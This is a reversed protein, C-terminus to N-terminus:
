NNNGKNVYIIQDCLNLNEIDHSVIFITKKNKLENLKKYFNVESEQDLSNTAEDFVLIETDFYFARALCIKQKQGSSIKAGNQGINTKLGEPFNQILENLNLFEVSKNLKEKDIQSTEIEFAINNEINSDLLFSNNSVYSIKKYWNINRLSVQKNDILLMRPDVDILGMLINLLTSKGSGNPGSIGIIQGKKFECSINNLILDNDFRFELNKIIINKEFEIKDKKVDEFDTERLEKKLKNLSPYAYQILQMSSIIRALGPMIRLSAVLLMSLFIILEKIDLGLFNFVFFIIIFISALVIEMLYKPITQFFAHKGGISFLNKSSLRFNKSFKDESSNLKIQTISGLGDSLYQICKQLIDFKERGLNSIKNKFYKIYLLFFILFCPFLYVSIKTFNLFIFLILGTIIIIDTLLLLSPYIINNIIEPAENIINKILFNTNKKKFFLFNKKLINEFYKSVFFSAIDNKIEIQKKILYINLLSKLLFFIFFINLLFFLDYEKLFNFFVFNKNEQFINTIIPLLLGLSVVELIATLTIIILSLYIKSKNSLNLLNYASIITSLTSM